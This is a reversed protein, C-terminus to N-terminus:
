VGGARAALDAGGLRLFRDLAEAHAPVLNPDAGLADTLRDLEAEAAAVGTRRALYGLLTEGPEADAEQPLYGVTLTPPSRRVTGTDPEELGALIRLLTSKGVGNPGVLGIRARPPAVVGVDRLVLQAGHSKTINAAVLTGPTRSM